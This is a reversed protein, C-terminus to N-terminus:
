SVEGRRAMRVNHRHPGPVPVHGITWARAVAHLGSGHEHRQQPLQQYVGGYEADYAAVAAFERRAAAADDRRRDLRAAALQDRRWADDDLWAAALRRRESRRAAAGVALVAAAPAAPAAIALGAHACVLLTLTTSM